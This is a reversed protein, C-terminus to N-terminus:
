DHSNGEVEKGARKFLKPMVSQAFLGIIISLLAVTILKSDSEIAWSKIGENFSGALSLVIGAGVQSISGGLVTSGVVSKFADKPQMSAMYILAIVGAVFSLGFPWASFLLAVIPIGVKIAAGHSIPEAM